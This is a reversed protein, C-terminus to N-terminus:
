RENQFVKMVEKGGVTERWKRPDSHQVTHVAFACADGVPRMAFRLPPKSMERSISAHEILSNDLMSTCHDCRHACDTRLALYSFLGEEYVDVEEFTGSNNPMPLTVESSM